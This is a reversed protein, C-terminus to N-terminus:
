SGVVSPHQQAREVLQPRLEAMKRLSEIATRGERDPGSLDLDPHALLLDVLPALQDEKAQFQGALAVLPHGHRPSALNINAGGELLRHVLDVDVEADVRQAGFMISLVGLHEPEQM